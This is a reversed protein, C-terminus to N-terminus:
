HYMLFFKYIRIFLFRMFIKYSVVVPNRKLIQHIQNSYVLNNMPLYLIIELDIIEKEIIKKSDHITSSFRKDGIQNRSIM